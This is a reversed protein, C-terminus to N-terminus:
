PPDFEVFLTVERRPVAGVSGSGDEDVESVGNRVTLVVVAVVPISVGVSM